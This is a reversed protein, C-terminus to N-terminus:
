PFWCMLLQFWDEAFEGGVKQSDGSIPPVVLAV